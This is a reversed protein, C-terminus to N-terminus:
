IHVMGRGKTIQSASIGQWGDRVANESNLQQATDLERRGQSSSCARSSQGDSHGQTEEFELKSLSLRHHWGVM